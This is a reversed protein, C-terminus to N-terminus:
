ISTMQYQDRGFDTFSDPSGFTLPEGLKEALKKAEEQRKLMKEKKSLNVKPEKEKAKAM